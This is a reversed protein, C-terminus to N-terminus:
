SSKHLRQWLTTLARPSTSLKLLDRYTEDGTFMGWLIRAVISKSGVETEARTIGAWADLIPPTNLVFRWMRFLLKGYRNDNGIRQCFPAYGYRFNQKSVGQQLAVQMAAKSTLFASGIGDKYLRTVAADGVAVWRDGFYAKSRSVAIRPNCGCLSEFPANSLRGLGQLEFFDQIADAKIGKGLLSINLYDGKPTLAGFVLGRPQRFYISVESSPWDSPRPIEDQAMVETEPPYYGFGPELPPRSNVGTALVVLDAHYEQRATQILPRDSKRIYRVRQPIHHAGRECAQALLFGDLSATPKNLYRRPGAGRFVSLIRRSPDPQKVRLVDEGLHLAYTHIDAQIVEAPLTLNLSELGRQLRSSLIGACHNCSGPGPRSYDRPEFILVELSLDLEQCFTLLHLAALSGAPGGGIICVRDGDKLQISV